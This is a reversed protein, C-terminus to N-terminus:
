LPIVDRSSSCTTSFALSGAFNCRCCSTSSLALLLLILPPSVPSSYFNLLYIPRFYFLRIFQLILLCISFNVYLRLLLIHLLIFSPLLIFFLFLFYLLILVVFLHLPLLLFNLIHLSLLLFLYYIKLLLFALPTIILLLLVLPLFLLLFIISFFSASSTQVNFNFYHAFFSTVYNLTVDWRPSVPIKFFVIFAGPRKWYSM